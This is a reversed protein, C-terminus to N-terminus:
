CKSCFVVPFKWLMKQKWIKPWVWIGYLTFVCVCVYLCLAYVCGKNDYGTETAPQKREKKGDLFQKTYERKKVALM